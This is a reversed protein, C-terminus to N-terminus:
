DKLKVQRQIKSNVFLSLSLTQKNSIQTHTHTPPPPPDPKTKLTCRILISSNCGQQKM